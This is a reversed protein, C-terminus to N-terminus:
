EVSVLYITFAQLPVISQSQIYKSKILFYEIAFMFRSLADNKTGNAISAYYVDPLTMVAAAYIAFLLANTEAQKADQQLDTEVQELRSQVTPYHIIKLLPDVNECYISFLQQRISTPPHRLSDSNVVFIDANSYLLTDSNPSHEHPSPLPSSM